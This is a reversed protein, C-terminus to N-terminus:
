IAKPQLVAFAREWRVALRRIDAGCDLGVLLGFRRGLPALISLRPLRSEPKLFAEVRRLAEENKLNFIPIFRDAAIRIAQGTGGTAYGDTTWCIIFKVPSDLNKGLVQHANRAHLGKADISCKHWAPHYKATLEFAEDSPESMQGRQPVALSAARRGRLNFLPEPLYLEIRGGAGVAGIEFAIDAGDAGGTRLTWGLDALRAAVKTMLSLIPEPTKRSGIGAYAKM